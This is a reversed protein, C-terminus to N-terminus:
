NPREFVVSQLIEEIPRANIAALYLSEGNEEKTALYRSAGESALYDVDIESPLPQHGFYVNEMREEGYKRVWVKWLCEGIITKIAHTEFLNPKQASEPVIDNGLTRKLYYRTAGEDIAEQSKGLQYSPLSEISHLLEEACTFQMPNTELDSPLVIFDGYSTYYAVTRTFLKKDTENFYPMDLVDIANSPLTIFRTSMSELKQKINPFRPIPLASVLKQITEDIHPQAQKRDIPDEVEARLQELQSDSLAFEGESQFDSSPQVELKNRTLLAKAKQAISEKAAELKLKSKQSQIEKLEKRGFPKTQTDESM